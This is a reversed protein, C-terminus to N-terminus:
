TNIEDNDESIAEAGILDKNEEVQLNSENTESQGFTKAKIFDYIFRFSDFREQNHSNTGTVFKIATFFGLVGTFLLIEPGISTVAMGTAIIYMAIISPIIIAAKPNQIIMDPAYYNSKDITIDAERIYVKSEIIKKM